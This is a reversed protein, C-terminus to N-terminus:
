GGDLLLTDKLNDTATGNPVNMADKSNGVLTSKNSLEHKSVILTANRKNYSVETFIKKTVAVSTNVDHANWIKAGTTKSYVDSIINGKEKSNPKM